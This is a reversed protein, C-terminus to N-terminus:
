DPLGAEFTELPGQVTSRGDRGVAPILEIQDAAFNPNISSAENTFGSPLRLSPHDFPAKEWLVRPDLLGGQLFDVLDAIDSDSMGFPFILQPLIDKNDVNGGRNYFQAVEVLSKMSGNHMYPGTLGANRLSPIKYTNLTAFAKGQDPLALQFKLADVKPVMAAARRGACKSAKYGNPDNQLTDSSWDILFPYEMDCAYVSVPDVLEVSGKLLANLYQATFSLPNGWPDNANQGPDFSEPVVGTNAFGTDHIAYPIPSSQPTLAYATRDVLVPGDKNSVRFVSPDAASSFTPGAHCIQCHNDLFVVLGRKQSPSLGSPVKGGVVYRQTYPTMPTDYPAQDSILTSEYLQIALGFFMPFNAEIQAYDKGSVGVKESSSWYKKSFAKMILDRYTLSLGQGSSNRVPGLISDDPAVDQTSLGPMDLVKQAIDPFQRQACSMEVSNVPPGVSQSALASNVLGLRVKKLSGSQVIYVGANPDRDGWPSQGNFINNARGDWFNRFNFAADIVSPANRNTSQRVNKGTVVDHYIPDTVATCEDYPSPPAVKIFNAMFTGQSGVVDDTSFLLKSTKDAPDQFAWMPFDSKKLQYNTNIQSKPNGGSKTPQFTLGMIRNADLDGTNFQNVSREDAGAHYHCSACASGDSSLATDWFLSKGLIRAYKQNIVIPSSGGVLGPVKPVRVTNLGPAPKGHGLATGSLSVMIMLAFLNLLIKM